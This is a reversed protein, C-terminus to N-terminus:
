WFQKRSAELTFMELWFRQITRRAIALVLADALGFDRRTKRMESHLLGDEKSIGEVINVVQSNSVFIDYATEFDGGQATKSVIEAFTVACTYIENSEKELFSKVKEGDKSWILYEIWADADIVYKENM